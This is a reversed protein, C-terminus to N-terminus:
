VMVEENKEEHKFQQWIPLNREKAVQKAYRIALDCKGQPNSLIRDVWALHDTHKGITKM